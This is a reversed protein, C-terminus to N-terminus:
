HQKYTPIVFNHQDSKNTSSNYSVLAIIKKSVVKRQITYPNAYNNWGRKLLKKRNYGCNPCQTKVFKEVTGGFVEKEIIGVEDDTAGNEIM